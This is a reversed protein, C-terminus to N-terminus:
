IQNIIQKLDTIKKFKINNKSFKYNQLFASRFTGMRLMRARCQYNEIKQQLQDPMREPYDPTRRASASQMPVTNGPIQLAYKDSLKGNYDEDAALTETSRLLPASLYPPLSSSHLPPVPVSM